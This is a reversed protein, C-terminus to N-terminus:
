LRVRLRVSPGKRPLAGETLGRRRGPPGALGGRLGAEERPVPRAAAAPGEGADRQLVAPREARLHDGPSACPM